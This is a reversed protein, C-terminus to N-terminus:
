RSKQHSLGLRRIMLRITSLAAVQVRQENLAEQLEALTISPKTEVLARLLIGHPELVPRRRSRGGPAVSGTARVRQMLKVATSPSVEYRLAAQRASAGGEVARVIRKRLDRSLAAEIM